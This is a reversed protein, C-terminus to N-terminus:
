SELRRGILDVPGDPLFTRAFRAFMAEPITFQMFRLLRQYRIAPKGDLMVHNKLTYLVVTRAQIVALILAAFVALRRADIPFASRLATQLTEHPHRSQAGRMASVVYLLQSKM